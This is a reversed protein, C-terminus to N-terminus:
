TIEDISLPFLSQYVEVGTGAGESTSGAAGVCWFVGAVAGPSGLYGNTLLSPVLLTGAPIATDTIGYATSKAGGCLLLVNGGYPATDLLSNGVEDQMFGLPVRAGPTVFSASPVVQCMDDTSIAYSPALTANLVASTPAQQVLVYRSIYPNTSSNPVCDTPYYTSLAGDSFTTGGANAIAARGAPTKWWGSMFRFYDMARFQRVGLPGYKKPVWTQPSEGRMRQNRVECLHKLYARKDMIDRQRALAKARLIVEQAPPALFWKFAIVALLVLAVLASVIALFHLINM